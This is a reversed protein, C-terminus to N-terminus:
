KRVSGEVRLEVWIVDWWTTSAGTLKNYTKSENIPQILFGLLITLIIMVIILIETPTTKTKM